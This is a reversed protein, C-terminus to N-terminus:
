RPLSALPFLFFFVGLKSTSYKEEGGPLWKRNDTNFENLTWARGCLARREIRVPKGARVTGSVASFVCVCVGLCVCVSIRSVNTNWFRSLCAQLYGHFRKLSKAWDNLRLMLRSTAFNSVGAINKIFHLHSKWMEDNSVVHEPTSRSQLSDPESAWLFAVGCSVVGPPFRFRIWFDTSTYTYTHKNTQKKKKNYM